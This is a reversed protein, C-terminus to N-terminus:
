PDFACLLRLTSRAVLSQSSSAQLVSNNAGLALRGIISAGRVFIDGKLADGSLVNLASSTSTQGTGGQAVTVAANDTLVTATANPFTFTRYATTGTAAWLGDGLETWPHGPNPTEAFLSSVYIVAFSVLSLEVVNKLKKFSPRM